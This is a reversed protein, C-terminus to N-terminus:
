ASSGADAIIPRCTKDTSNSGRPHRIITGAPMPRIPNVARQRGSMSGILAQELLSGSVPLFMFGASVTRAPVHIAADDSAAVLWAWVGDAWVGGAWVAQTVWFM